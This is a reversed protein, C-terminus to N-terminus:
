TMSNRLSMRLCLSRQPLNNKIYNCIGHKAETFIAISLFLPGLYKWILRKTVKNLIFFLLLSLVEAVVTFNVSPSLCDKPCKREPHKSEHQFPTALIWAIAVIFVQPILGWAGKETPIKMRPPWCCRCCTYSRTAEGPNWPGWAVSLAPSSSSRTRHCRNSKSVICQSPKWWTLMGLQLSPQCFRALWAGPLFCFSTWHVPPGGGGDWRMPGSVGRLFPNNAAASFSPAM